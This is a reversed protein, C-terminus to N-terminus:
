EKGEYYRKWEEIKRFREESIKWFFHYISKESCTEFCTEFDDRNKAICDFAWKIMGSVEHKHLYAACEFKTRSKNVDCDDIGDFTKQIYEKAILSDEKYLTALVTVILDHDSGLTEDLAWKKQRNDGDMILICLIRHRNLESNDYAYDGELLDIEAKAGCEGLIFIAWKRYEPDHLISRALRVGEAIKQGLISVLIMKRQQKSESLHFLDILSKPDKKGMVGLRKYIQIEAKDNLKKTEGYGQFISLKNNRSCDRILFVLLGSLVLVMLILLGWPPSSKQEGNIIRNEDM